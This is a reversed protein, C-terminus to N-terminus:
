LVVAGLELAPHRGASARSSSQSVLEASAFPQVKSPRCATGRVLMAALQRARLSLQTGPGKLARKQASETSVCHANANSRSLGRAMRIEDTPHPTSAESAHWTQQETPEGARGGESGGGGTNGGSFGCGNKGTGGGGGGSNSRLSESSREGAAAALSSGVVRGGKM